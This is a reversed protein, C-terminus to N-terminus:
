RDLYPTLYRLTNKDLEITFMIDKDGQRMLVAIMEPLQQTDLGSFAGRWTAPIDEGKHESKTVVNDWGLYNFRIEDMDKFLTFEKDFQIEQNAYKLLFDRTSKAQYILDYKDNQKKEIVIRFVEPYYQQILGVKAISLLSKESGEFIFGPYAKGGNDSLVIYPQISTLTTNFLNLKRGFDQNVNFDTMEKQWRVALLQYSFNGVLLIGSLISISLLLEILTFGQRKVVM